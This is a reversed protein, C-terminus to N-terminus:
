EQPADAGNYVLCMMTLDDFQEADKVFEDVGRRVNELVQRIGADPDRNIVKLARDLGLMKNEADSAEPLGDTYVFVKSGPQMQIEYESYKLGPMGGLVLGHKDKLLMFGQGPHMVMPYEHGANAATLKGTSIQLVGMWMSVFMEEPNRSSMRDNVLELVKGPSTQGEAMSHIVIMSVMMFLAAPVGKGSVDAIVLAVHDDDIMFFDYFDGGVEKAPDMNAFIDFEKRDPFPPFTHPMSHSQIRSALGMEAAAKEKEATIESIERVHEDIERTMDTVDEALQGIENQSRIQSLEEIVKESDKDETYTRISNQVSKLPKLIFAFILALCLLSMFAQHLVALISGKMTQKQISDKIATLNFTLGIMVDHGDVSFMYSYYDVYNGADALHKENQRASAMAQQQSEAVEVQVGITYVEEYNTGRKSGPDAASFLFFQRTYPSETIVCFLYDIKNAHKISDVRSILWSYTIEAYLKQDEASLAKIQAETAYKPQIEPHHERFLQLKAETKTGQSFDADYEIDLKDYNDYWYRVLWKYAPYEMVAYEVETALNDSINEVEATVNDNFMKRETLLTILGTVITAVAFFIAVQWIIGVKRKTGQM